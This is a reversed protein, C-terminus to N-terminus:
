IRSFYTEFLDMHNAMLTIFVSLGGDNTARPVLYCYGDENVWGPGMFIPRGWGFDADYVPLKSWSSIVLNPCGRSLSSRGFIDKELNLEVFDIASRFYEDNMGIISEHIMNSAYSAPKSVLDGATTMPSAYFTPNGFYSPPLNPQIRSRADVPIHLKVKQIDSLGRAMCVCRWIHGSLIEFSTYDTTDGDEKSKDKLANIQERTVKFTRTSNPANTPCPTLLKPSPQFEIPHSKYHPPDRARLLLRDFFPSTTPELGRSMEAWTNIFQIRSFGDAFVHHMAVGLSVGGCKFYTVQLLLLPSSSIDGPCNVGPVLKKYEMTPAFDDFDDLTSTTEAEMFLVGEGNCDIEMRRGDFDRSLRGAVPYYPILAQSLAKKLVNPDFFSTSRTPRYFYISPVHARSIIIDVNSLWLRRKPMEQSPQVMKVNKINIIM